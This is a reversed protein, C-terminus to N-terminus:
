WLGDYHRHHSVEDVFVDSRQIHPEELRLELVVLLEDIVHGGSKDRPEKVAIMRKVLDDILLILFDRLHIENNFTGNAKSDIGELLLHVAEKVLNPSSLLSLLENTVM